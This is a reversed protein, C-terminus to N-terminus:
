ASPKDRFRGILWMLAIGFCMGSAILQVVDVARYTQIRHNGILEVVGVVGIIFAGAPFAGRGPSAMTDEWNFIIDTSIFQSCLIHRGRPSTL